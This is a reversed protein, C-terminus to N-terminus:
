PPLHRRRMHRPIRRMNWERWHLVAFILCALRDFVFETKCANVNLFFSVLANIAEQLADFTPFTVYALDLQELMPWCRFADVTPCVYHLGFKHLKPCLLTSPWSTIDTGWKHSRHLVLVELKAALGAAEMPKLCGSDCELFKLSKPLHTPTSAYHISFKLLNTTRHLM